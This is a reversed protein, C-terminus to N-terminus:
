KYGFIRICLAVILFIGGFLLYYYPFPSFLASILICASAILFRKANTRHLWLRLHKKNSLPEESLYQDPLANQQKLLSYVEEGKVAQINLRKCLTYATDEIKSCLLIKRKSTKLRSFRLVDDANVPAISFQLAYFAQDTYIRLCTFRRAITHESSLRKLFFKTKEEDSLLALHLLLKEKEAEDSKKLLLIKRKSQLFAGVSLATLGGCVLALIIALSLPIALYRFLCLTFLFASFLAFLIDSIFASRKM